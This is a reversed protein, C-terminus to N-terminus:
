GAGGCARCAEVGNFGLGVYRGSGGCDPCPASTTRPTADPDPQSVPTGSGVSRGAMESWSIAGGAGGTGGGTHATVAAGDGAGGIGASLTAPAPKEEPALPRLNCTYNETNADPREDHDWRVCTMTQNSPGLVTGSYRDSDMYGVREGIRPRWSECKDVIWSRNDGDTDVAEIYNDGDDTYHRIVKGVNCPHSYGVARAWDGLEPEWEPRPSDAPKHDPQGCNTCESAAEREAHTQDFRVMKGNVLVRKGSRWENLRDAFRGRDEELRGRIKRQGAVCWVCMSGTPLTHCTCNPHTM